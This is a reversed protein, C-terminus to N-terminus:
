LTIRPLKLAQHINGTESGGGKNCDSTLILSCAQPLKALNKERFNLSRNSYCTCCLCSKEGVGEDKFYILRRELLRCGPKSFIYTITDM